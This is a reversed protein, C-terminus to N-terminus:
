DEMKCGCYRCHTALPDIADQRNCHSCVGNGNQDKLIWRGKPRLSEPDITPMEQVDYADYYMGFASFRIKDKLANADILRM